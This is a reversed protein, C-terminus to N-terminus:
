MTLGTARLVYGIVFNVIFVFIILLVVQVFSLDFLWMTLGIWCASIILLGFCGFALDGVWDSSPWLSVGRPMGVAVMLSFVAVVAANIGAVRLLILQAPGLDDLWTKAALWFIAAGTASGIVLHVLAGFASGAGATAGFGMMAMMTVAVGGVLLVLPKMYEARITDRATDSILRRHVIRPDLPRPEPSTPPAPGSDVLDEVRLEHSETAAAESQELIEAMMGSGDDVPLELEPEPKPPPAADAPARKRPLAEEHCSKCCYRGKSDKIRPRGSCDEGCIVCIKLSDGM